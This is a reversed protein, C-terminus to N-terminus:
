ATSEWHAQSPEQAGTHATLDSYEHVGAELESNAPDNQGSVWILMLRGQVKQGSLSFEEPRRVMLAM